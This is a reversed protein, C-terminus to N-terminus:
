LQHIQFERTNGGPPSLQPNKAATQGHETLVRM